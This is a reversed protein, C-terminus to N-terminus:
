HSDEGTGPGEDPRWLEGLDRVVVDAGAERLTGAQDTRDVGVVLGFGGAHGAAVGAIADEIVVTRRPEAALRHAAELFVAPDPKGPLKLEDAVVGDIRADFLDGLGVSELVVAMNRSASIVAVAVGDRKLALVLDVAGGFAHAGDAELRDLFALNKRNGLGCITEEDPADGPGGEPVVIERSHLFDRVGDYRPKGDVYRRYDAGIDFPVFPEGTQRSRQQLYEDFLQKWAHAHVVATDTVVGDMDFVVADTDPPLALPRRAVGTPTSRADPQG